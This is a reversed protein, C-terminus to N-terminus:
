RLSPCQQLGCLCMGFYNKSTGCYLTCCMPGPAMSHQCAAEARWCAVPSGACPAAHPQARARLSPACCSPTPVHMPISHLCANPHVPFMCQSSTLIDIPIFHPHADPHLPFSCRSASLHANPHVPTMCKLAPPHASPHLSSTCAKYGQGATSCLSGPQQLDKLWSGAPSRVQNERGLDHVWQRLAPLLLSVLSGKGWVSPGM